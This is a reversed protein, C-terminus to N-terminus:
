EGQYQNKEYDEILKKAESIKLDYLDLSPDIIKLIREYKRRTNYELEELYKNVLSYEPRRTFTRKFEKKSYKRITIKEGDSPIYEPNVILGLECLAIFRRGSNLRRTVDDKLFWALCADNPGNSSYVEGEVSIEIKKTM